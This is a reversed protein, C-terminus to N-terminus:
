SHLILFMVYCVTHINSCVYLHIIENEKGKMILTNRYFNNSLYFFLEFVMGPYFQGFPVFKCHNCTHVTENEPSPTGSIPSNM